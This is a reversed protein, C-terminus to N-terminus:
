FPGGGSAGGSPRDVEVIMAHFAFMTILPLQHIERAADSFSIRWPGAPAKIVLVRERLGRRLTWTESLVPPRLRLELGDPLGIEGGALLNSKYKAVVAVGATAETDGSRMREFRWEGDHTVCPVVRAIRPDGLQALVQDEHRLEFGDHVTVM